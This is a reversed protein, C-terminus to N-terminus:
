LFVRYKVERFTGALMTENTAHVTFNRVEQGELTKYPENILGDDFLTRDLPQNSDGSVIEISFLGCYLDVGTVAM